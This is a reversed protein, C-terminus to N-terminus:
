FNMILVEPKINRSDVYVDASVKEFVLEHYMVHNKVLWETTVEFDVKYRSTYIIIKHGANYLERIKAVVYPRPTRCKYNKVSHGLEEMTITGDLDIAFRM